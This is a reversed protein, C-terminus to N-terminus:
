PRQRAVSISPLFTEDMLHKAGHKFFFLISTLLFNRM